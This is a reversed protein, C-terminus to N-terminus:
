KKNNCTTKIVKNFYNTIFKSIQTTKSKTKQTKM